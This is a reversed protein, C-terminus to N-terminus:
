AGAGEEASPNPVVKVVVVNKLDKLTKLSDEAATADVGVATLTTIDGSSWVVDNDDVIVKNNSDLNAATGAVEELKSTTKNYKFYVTGDKSNYCFYYDANSDMQGDEEALIVTLAARTEQQISSNNAKAVIGAFTPILVGALIAIVAIVIVLEVITFGKKNNRKM